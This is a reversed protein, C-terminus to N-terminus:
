PKKVDNKDVVGDANVDAEKFSREAIAMDEEVTYKGDRNRDVIGFRVHAQKMSQAHREDPSAARTNSAQPPGRVRGRVGERQALRRWQHRRGPFRQKRVTDYEQRTVVGDRNADYSGMFPSSAMGARLSPRAAPPRHRPADCATLLAALGAAAPPPCFVRDVVGSTPLHLPPQM